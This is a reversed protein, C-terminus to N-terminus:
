QKTLDTWKGVKDKEFDFRYVDASDVGGKVFGGYDLVPGASHGM